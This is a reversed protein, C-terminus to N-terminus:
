EREKEQLAKRWWEPAEIEGGFWSNHSYWAILYSALEKWKALVDEANQRCTDNLFETALSPHLRYRSYAEEDIGPLRNMEATELATQARSIEGIMRSYHLRSWNAVLNFIWYASDWCFKTKVGNTYAEPLVNVGAYFPVYVCADGWGGLGVLILGGIPDPLWNRGQTIVISPGTADPITGYPAGTGRPWWPCGFPGAALGKTRDLSPAREHFAM